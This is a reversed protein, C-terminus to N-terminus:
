LWSTFDRRSLPNSMWSTDPLPLKLATKVSLWGQPLPMTSVSGQRTTWAFSRRRESERAVGLTTRVDQSVYEMVLDYKGKAWLPPADIGEVGALKGPLQLGAAANKLAVPFGKECVVHFMMDVHDDVLERCRDILGSEEALIDFDFGLGNWTLPTLGDGVSDDLHQVFAAVDDRSMQPAPAGSSSRTIWVRPEDSESSLSAICTIGLPRHPKWNFDTGPVIKATEIDFAIYKRAM